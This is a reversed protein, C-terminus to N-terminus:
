IELSIEFEFYRTQGRKWVRLLSNFIRRTAFFLLLSSYNLLLTFTGDLKKGISIVLQVVYNM